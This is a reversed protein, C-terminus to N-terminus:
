FPAAINYTSAVRYAYATVNRTRLADFGLRLLKVSLLNHFQPSPLARTVLIVVHFGSLLSRTSFIASTQQNLRLARKLILGLCEKLIKAKM